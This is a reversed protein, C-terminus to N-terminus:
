LLKNSVSFMFTKTDRKYISVERPTSMWLSSEFRLSDYEYGFLVSYGDVGTHRLHQYSFEALFADSGISYGRCGLFWHSPRITPLSRSYIMDGWLGIGRGKPAETNRMVELHSSLRDVATLKGDLEVSAALTSMQYIMQSTYRGRSVSNGKQLYLDALETPTDQSVSWLLSYSRLFAWKQTPLQQTFSLSLTYPLESSIVPRNLKRYPLFSYLLQGQYSEGEFIFSVSPLARQYGWLKSTYTTLRVYGTALKLQSAMLGVYAQELDLSFPSPRPNHSVDAYARVYLGLYGYVLGRRMYGANFVSASTLLESALDDDRNIVDFSLSSKMMAENDEGANLRRSLDTLFYTNLEPTSSVYSLSESTQSDQEQAYSYGGSMMSIFCWLCAAAFIYYISGLVSM